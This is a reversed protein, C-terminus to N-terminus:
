SGRTPSYRPDYLRRPRIVRAVGVRFDVVNFADHYGSGLMVQFINLVNAQFGLGSNLSGSTSYRRQLRWPIDIPREYSKAKVTMYTGYKSSRAEIIVWGHIRQLVQPPRHTPVSPQEDSYESRNGPPAAVSFVQTARQKTVFAM